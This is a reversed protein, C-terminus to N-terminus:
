PELLSMTLMLVVFALISRKENVKKEHKLVDNVEIIPCLIPSWITSELVLAYVQAPKSKLAKSGFIRKTLTSTDNSHTLFPAAEYYLSM